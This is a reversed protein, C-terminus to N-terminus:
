ERTGVAVVEDTGAARGQVVLREFDEVPVPRSLYFGQYCLCGLDALRQQQERTEVGEAIVSLGLSEALVVVMRSIAADNPDTLIDKVFSRDIKIQNLPLQKLYALSSYGTGFDDLSFRVGVARLAHMKSIVDGVNEVLTGETLELKLLRPDAGTHALVELVQQVFTEQRFERASVNVAIKLHALAPRDRWASLQACATQLVWRGVPLILGTEEALPIFEAPSVMGREPHMWRLLAEAGIIRGDQNVQAQYHLLFQEGRLAERLSNELRTRATVAAQMKHDYFRLTNRGATKAQHMALGSQMLPEDAGAHTHRDFLTVGISASSYVDQGALRYSRDLSCRINEGVTEAQTTAGLADPSLDELMVVFEDGGLRALTDGQRVCRRLTQAVEQLLLDGLDHGLTENINKFHDLDVILLASMRDHRSSAALAHTLRDILLRRNPLGTLPDYFALTQIQDEAANREVEARAVSIGLALDKASEILVEMTGADFVDAEAAFINLVGIVADDIKLPLTLTAQCGHALALGRWGPDGAPSDASTWVEVSGLRMARGVPDHADEDDRWALCPVLATDAAQGYSAALRAQHRTEALAVWAMQFDGAEVIARCMQDLLAAEDYGHLLTRNGASLVRLTRNLYEVRREREEIASSSEDLARALEGVEGAGHALGSRAGRDGARLREALRVLVLVPRMFWRDLLIAVSGATALLVLLLAAISVVADRRAREQAAAKPISLLLQYRSVADSGLFPVHAILRREGARNQEDLLGTLPGARLKDLVPSSVTTNTWHEPDPFRAVVVGHADVIALREGPMSASAGIAKDLWELSV